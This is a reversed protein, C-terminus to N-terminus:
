LDCFARFMLLPSAVSLKLEEEASIFLISGRRLSLAGSHETAQGEIVLLISASGIASLSYPSNAPPVEIKMVAFDPIPPSYLTVCSDDPHKKSPFLNENAPKCDYKLMSCLTPVDKFKPTLGARVVNDSCAMCEMCDGSLYAHPLNAELFMAQGPQLVVRNLLYISFCGVDGTFQENLRLLLDGNLDSVDNGKAVSTQIRLVLCSLKQAVVSAECTMLATFCDQLAKGSEKDNSAASLNQANKEGVIECFEKVYLGEFPTLAIAMEPKHNPDPYKDPNRKHLEEAHKKNPHAQISLSKNVSLVKFLFPLQGEAPFQKAVSSGICKPNAKIFDSLSEGTTSNFCPGKPHTGMWLEAYPASEDLQFGPDDNRSLDAVASSSGLKGWAYQQVACRLPFVAPSKAM